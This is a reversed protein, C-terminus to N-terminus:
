DQLSSPKTAFIKLHRNLGTPVGTQNREKLGELFINAINEGIEEATMAGGPKYWEYTWNMASFLTLTIFKEDAERFIGDKKGRRIIGRFFDEYEQRLAKFRKMAGNELHKWDHFFVASADLNKTIVKIHQIIALKLMEDASLNSEKLSSIGAFFEEAMKFCIEELIGSKSRVHSYLSAPEIGVEGALQRMSTAPYGKDRFLQQAVKRIHEKRTLVEAM